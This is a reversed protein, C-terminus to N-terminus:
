RRLAKVCDEIMNGVDARKMYAETVEEISSMQGCDDLQSMKLHYGSALKEDCNFRFYQNRPVLRSYLHHINEGRGSSLVDKLTQGTGKLYRRLEAGPSSSFLSSIGLVLSASSLLSPEGFSRWYGRMTQRIGASDGIKNLGTGISIYCIDRDWRGLNLQRIADQTTEIPNNYYLAGDLLRRTQQGVQIEQVDFYTPAASTARVAM